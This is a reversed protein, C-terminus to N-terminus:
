ALVLTPAPQVYINTNKCGVSYGSPPLMSRDELVKWTDKTEEIVAFGFQGAICM